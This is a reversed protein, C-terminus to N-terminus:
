VNEELQRSDRAYEWGEEGETEDALSWSPATFTFTEGDTISAGYDVWEIMPPGQEPDAYLIAYRFTGPLLVMLDGRTQIPGVWGTQVRKIPM